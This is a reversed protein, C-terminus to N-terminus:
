ATDDSTKTHTGCWGPRGCLHPTDAIAPPPKPETATTNCRHQTRNIAAIHYAETPPSAKIDDHHESLHRISPSISVPIRVFIRVSISVSNRVSISLSAGLHECLHACLHESISVSISVAISVSISASIGVSISM